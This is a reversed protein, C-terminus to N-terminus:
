IKDLYCCGDPNDGGDCCGGETGIRFGSDWPTTRRRTGSRRRGSRTQPLGTTGSVGQVHDGTEM